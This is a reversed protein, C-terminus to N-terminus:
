YFRIDLTSFFMHRKALLNQKFINSVFFIMFTHCLSIPLVTEFVTATFYNQNSLATPRNQNLAMRININLYYFALFCWEIKYKATKVQPPHPTPPNCTGWINFSLGM